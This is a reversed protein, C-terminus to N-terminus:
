HKLIRIYWPLTNRKVSFYSVPKAGFGEYFRAIGPINSGEFDLILNEGAHKEIFHSVLLFMAKCKSGEDSSSSALYIVKNNSWVFFTAAILQNRSDFVGLLEGYQHYIAYGIVRKLNQYHTHKVEPSKDQLNNKTFSIFEDINFIPSVLLQKDKAKKINRKTNTSFDELITEIPNKLSLHYTINPKTSIDSSTPINQYNLNMEVLQYKKPISHLFSNVMEKDVPFASFVGLQQTFFPQYIYPIGFKKNWVLPMVYLYDGFILADWQDCIRDLYWPWAYVIGNLSSAICRDWKEIDIESHQLYKIEPNIM